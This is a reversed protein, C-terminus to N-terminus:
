VTSASRDIRSQPEATGSPSSGLLIAEVEGLGEKCLLPIYEHAVGIM